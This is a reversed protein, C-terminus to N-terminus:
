HKRTNGARRGETAKAFSPLRPTIQCYKSHLYMPALRDPNTFKRQKAKTLGLAAVVEARPYWNKTSINVYPNKELSDKYLKVADGFVLTPKKIKKLLSDIDLLMYDTLRRLGRKGDFLCAYVKKKKADLLPCLMYDKEDSFNEAIVRLTPLAVIPIGLAMNIGKCTAVGIRLGTFSGPGISLAIADINKLKLRCKKLLKDITPMLFDFHRLEEKEHSRALISDNETIAVSLYKTSTDIALLKM